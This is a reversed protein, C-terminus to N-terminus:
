GPCPLRLAQSVQADINLGDRWPKSVIVLRGVHVRSRPDTDAFVRSVFDPGPLHIQQKPIGKCTHQLLGEAEGGLTDTIAKLNGEARMTM